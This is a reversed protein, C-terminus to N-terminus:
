YVSMSFCKRHTGHAPGPLPLPVLRLQLLQELLAKHLGALRQAWRKFIPRSVAQRPTAVMSHSLQPPMYMYICLCKAHYGTQLFAPHQMPSGEMHM